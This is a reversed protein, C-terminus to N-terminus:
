GAYKKMLYLLYQRERASERLKDLSDIRSTQSVVAVYVFVVNM